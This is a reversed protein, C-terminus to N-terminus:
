WACAKTMDVNTCYAEAYAHALREAFEPDDPDLRFPRYVGDDEISCM